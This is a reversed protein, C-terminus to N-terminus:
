HPRQIGFLIDTTQHPPLHDVKEANRQYGGMTIKFVHFHQGPELWNNDPRITLVTHDSETVTETPACAPIGNEMQYDPYERRMEKQSNVRSIIMVGTVANGIQIAYKGYSSLLKARLPINVIAREDTVMKRGNFVVHPLTFLPCDGPTAKSSFRPDIDAEIATSDHMLIAM